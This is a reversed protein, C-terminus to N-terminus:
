LLLATVFCAHMSVHTWMCLILAYCSTCSHSYGLKMLEQQMHLKPVIKYLKWKKKYAYARLAAIGEEAICAHYALMFM